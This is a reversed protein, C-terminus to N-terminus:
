TTPMINPISKTVQSYTKQQRQYCELRIECFNREM